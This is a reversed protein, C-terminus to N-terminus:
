SLCIYNGIDPERLNTEGKQQHIQEDAVVTEQGVSGHTGEEIGVEKEENFSTAIEVVLFHLSTL